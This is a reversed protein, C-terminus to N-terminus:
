STRLVRLFMKRQDFEYCPPGLVFWWFRVYEGSLAGARCKGTNM